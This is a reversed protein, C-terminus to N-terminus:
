ENESLILKYKQYVGVPTIKKNEIKLYKNESFVAEDIKETSIIKYDIILRDMDFTEEDTSEAYQYIIKKIFYNSKSIYIDTKKIANASSYFCFHRTEANEGKYLVSDNLSMLSDINPMSEPVKVSVNNPKFYTISKEENDIIFTGQTNTLMEDKGFNSLYLLGSKKMFGNGFLIGTKDKKDKYMMATVNMSLNQVAKYAQVTKKLEEQVKIQAVLNQIFLFGCVITLTYKTQKIKNLLKV